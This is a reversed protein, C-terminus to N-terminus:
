AERGPVPERDVLDVELHAPRQAPPDWGLRRVAPGAYVVDRHDQEALDPLPPEEQHAVDLVADVRRQELLSQGLDVQELDRM